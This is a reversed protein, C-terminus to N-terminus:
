PARAHEVSVGSGAREAELGDAAAGRVDGEDLAIAAGLRENGGVDRVAADGLAISNDAVAKLPREAIEDAGFEVPHKEIRRVLLGGNVGDHFRAPMKSPVAHQDGLM